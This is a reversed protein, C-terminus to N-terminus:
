NGFIPKGITNPFIDDFFLHMQVRFGFDRGSRANVPIVAELGVELYRDVWIIGPNITGTTQGANPGNLPTQMAFEVLPILGGWGPRDQRGPTVLSYELVFNWVLFDPNTTETISTEGTPLTTTSFTTSQTPVSVGVQTTLGVPRLWALSDPLDGFGKAAFVTPTLTSFSTAGLHRTGTGGIAATGGASLFFQHEANTYLQYKTGIVFNAWGWRTGTTPQNLIRGTETFTVSWDRTIRKSWTIPFNIERTSPEGASEPLVLFGPFNLFDSPFPDIVAFTSPFFRDGAFGHAAAESHAALALLLSPVAARWATRAM